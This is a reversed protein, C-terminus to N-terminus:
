FPPLSVLMQANIALKSVTRHGSNPHCFTPIASTAEGPCTLTLYAFAIKFNCGSLTRGKKIRHNNKSQTTSQDIHKHNLQIHIIGREFMPHDLIPHNAFQIFRPISELLSPDKRLDM